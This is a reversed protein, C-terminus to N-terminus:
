QPRASPAWEEELIVTRVLALARDAAWQRVRAPSGSLSLRQSTVQGRLDVAVHAVGYPREPTSDRPVDIPGTGIGLDARSGRRAQSALWRAPADDTDFEQDELAEETIVRSGRFWRGAGAPRTLRAAVLGGTGLEWAAVTLGRDALLDGVAQPLSEQGIICPGLKEELTELDQDLLAQAEDETDATAVLEVTITGRHPLLGLLPNRGRAMMPRLRENIESEPLGYVKLDARRIVRGSGVLERLRPLIFHDLMGDMEYPIGPTAFLHKGDRQLYFGPATGRDNYIVQSGAPVHAQIRNSDPMTHGYRDFRERIQDVARQDEELPLDFYSAVAQRTMDDVTPGLGGTVLLVDAAALASDLAHHIDAVVDGVSLHLTVDLPVTTLRRSLTRSNTDLRYGTTLEDGITLIAATLRTPNNM